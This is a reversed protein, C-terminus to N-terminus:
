LSTTLLHRGFKVCPIEQAADYAVAVASQSVDNNDLDIVQSDDKREKKKVPEAKTKGYLAFRQRHFVNAFKAFGDSSVLNKGVLTKGDM